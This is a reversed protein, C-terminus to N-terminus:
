TDQGKRHGVHADAAHFRAATERGAEDVQECRRARGRDFTIGITIVDKQSEGSDVGPDGVVM